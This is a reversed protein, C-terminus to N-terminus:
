QFRVNQSRCPPPVIAQPPWRCRRGTCRGAGIRCYSWCATGGLLLQAPLVGVGALAPIGPVHSTDPVAVLMGAAESIVGLINLEETSSSTKSTVAPVWGEPLVSGLPALLAIQTRGLNDTITIINQTTLYNNEAIQGANLEAALTPAAAGTGIVLAAGLAAVTKTLRKSSRSQEPASRRRDARNGHSAKM